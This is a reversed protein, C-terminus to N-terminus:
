APSADTPPSNWRMSVRSWCPAMPPSSASASRAWGSHRDIGSTIVAKRGPQERHFRAVDDFIAAHGRSRYGPGTIEASEVLCHEILATRRVPDPENWLAEYAGLVADNM